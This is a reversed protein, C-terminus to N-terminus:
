PRPGRVGGPRAGVAAGSARPAPAPAPAPAPPAGPPPPLRKSPRHVVGRSPPQSLGRGQLSRSLPQPVPHIRKLTASTQPVSHPRTRPLPLAAQYEHKDAISQHESARISQHESARISQHESVRISTVKDTAHATSCGQGRGPTLTRCPVRRTHGRPMACPTRGKPHRPPAGRHSAHVNDTDRSRSCDTPVSRAAHTGRRAPGRHLCARSAAGATAQLAVRIRSQLAHKCHMSATRAQLMDQKSLVLGESQSLSPPAAAECM